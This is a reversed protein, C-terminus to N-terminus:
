QMNDNNKDPKVEIREASLYINSAVMKNKMIEKRYDEAEEKDLFNGFKLKIYPPQFSMYVKQEPYRQLLQTRVKMALTRDNTSLLMLRYGKATTKSKAIIDDNFDAEIKALDDLRSDKIITVKGAPPTSDAANRNSQATAKNVLIGILCILVIRKM